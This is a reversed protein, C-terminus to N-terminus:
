LRQHRGCNLCKTCTGNRVMQTSGCEGCVDGTFGKLRAEQVTDAKGRTLMLTATVAGSAALPVDDAHAADGIAFGM